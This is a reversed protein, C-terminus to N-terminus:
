WKSKKWFWSYSISFGDGDYGPNPFAANQTSQHFQGYGFRLKNENEFTYELGLQTSYNFTFNTGNSPFKGFGYFVGAGYELYPSIRKKGLIYWRYYTMLGAGLGFSNQNKVVPTQDTWQQLNFETAVAFWPALRKEVGFNQHLVDRFGWFYEHNMGARAQYYNTNEGNKFILESLAYSLAAAGMIGIFTEQNRLVLPSEPGFGPVRVWNSKSQQCLATVSFISILTLIFITKRLLLKM